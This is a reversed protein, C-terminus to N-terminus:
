ASTTFMSSLQPPILRSLIPASMLRMCTAPSIRVVSRPYIPMETMATVMVSSRELDGEKDGSAMFARARITAMDLAFNVGVDAMYGEYDRDDAGDSDREGFNSGLIVFFSFMDFSMNFEGMVLFLDNSDPTDITSTGDPANGAVSNPLREYGFTLRADMNEAKYAGSAV